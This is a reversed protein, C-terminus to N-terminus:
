EKKFPKIKTIYYAGNIHKYYFVLNEDACIQVLTPYFWWFFPKRYHLIADRKTDNSNFVHNDYFPNDKSRDM